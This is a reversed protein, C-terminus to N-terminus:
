KTYSVGRYVFDGHTDQRQWGQTTPIGRYATHALQARRAAEAKEIQRKIIALTNM